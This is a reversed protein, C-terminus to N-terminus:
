PLLPHVKGKEVSWFYKDGWLDILTFCSYFHHV